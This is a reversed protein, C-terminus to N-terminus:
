ARKSDKRRKRSKQSKGEAGLRKHVEKFTIQDIGEVFTFADRVASLKGLAANPHLKLMEPVTIDVKSGRARIVFEQADLDPFYLELLQRVKEELKNTKEEIKVDYVLVKGALGHNLDVRVRGGSVSQVRGIEDGLEIRMGPVPNIGQKKFERLPLLKVKSPDRRGFGDEPQIEIRREEGVEAGELGKDLGPIVHGAGVVIPRAKFSMKPDYINHERAVDEYTTDFVEGTEKIRGTFNIRVFDGRKLVMMVV